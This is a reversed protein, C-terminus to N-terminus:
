MSRLFKAEKREREREKKERERERMAAVAAGIIPVSESVRRVKTLKRKLGTESNPQSASTSTTSRREFIFMPNTPTQPQPQATPSVPSLSAGQRSVIASARPRPTALINQPQSACKRLKPNPNPNASSPNRTHRPNSNHTYPMPACWPPWAGHDDKNDKLLLRDSRMAPTTPTVPPSDSRGSSSSSASSKRQTSVSLFTDDYELEVVPVPKRTAYARRAKSTTPTSQPTTPLLPTEDPLGLAVVLADRNGSVRSQRRKRESLDPSSAGAHVRCWEALEQTRNHSPPRDFDRRPIYDHLVALTTSEHEEDDSEDDSAWVEASVRVVDTDTLESEEDDEIKLYALSTASPKRDFAPRTGVTSMSWRSSSETKLDAALNSVTSSSRSLASTPGFDSLASPPRMSNAISSVSWRSRLVRSPAQSLATSPRSPDPSGITSMSWRSNSASTNSFINSSSSCPEPTDLRSSPLCAGANLTTQAAASLM